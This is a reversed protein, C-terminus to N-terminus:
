AAKSTGRVRVRVCYVQNGASSNSQAKTTLNPTKGREIRATGATRYKAMM